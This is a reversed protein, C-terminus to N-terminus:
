RNEISYRDFSVLLLKLMPIFYKINNEWKTLIHTNQAKWLSSYFIFIQSFSLSYPHTFMLFKGDNWNERLFKWIYVLDWMFWGTTRGVRWEYSESLINLISITSALPYYQIYLHTYYIFIFYKWITWRKWVYMSVPSWYVYLLM